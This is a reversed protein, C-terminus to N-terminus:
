HMQVAFFDVTLDNFVKMIRCSWYGTNKRLWLTWSENGRRTGEITNTSKLRQFTVNFCRFTTFVAFQPNFSM